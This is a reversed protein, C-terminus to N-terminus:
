PNSGWGQGWPPLNGGDGDGHLSMPLVEEGDGDGSLSKIGAPIGMGADVGYCAMTKGRSDREGRGGFSHEGFGGEGDLEGRSALASAATTARARGRSRGRREDEAGGGYFVASSGRERERKKGKEREVVREGGGM